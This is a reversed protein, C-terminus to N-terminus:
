GGFQIKQVKVSHIRLQGDNTTRGLPAFATGSLVEFRPRMRNTYPAGVGSNSLSLSNWIVAYKYPGGERPMVVGRNALGADSTDAANTTLFHDCVIEETTVSAGLRIVDPNDLSDAQTPASLEYEILYDTDAEITVPFNDEVSPPDLLSNTTDGPRLLLLGGPDITGWNTPDLTLNGGSFTATQTLGALDLGWEDGTDTLTDDDLAAAGIEQVLSYDYRQVMVSTFCLKGEDTDAGIGAAAVDLIKLILRFDNDADLGSRFFGNTSDQFYSLQFCPPMMWFVFESRGTGAIASNAGGENDLLFIEGGYANNGSSGDDNVNDYVVQWLPQDGVTADSTMGLRLKYVSNAVLEWEGYPSRWNAIGDVALGTELCLGEAGSTVTVTGNDVTSTWGSPTGATLDHDILTIGPDPPSYSDNADDVTYIIFIGDEGSEEVPNSVTTGDSAYLTVVQSGVLGGGPDPLYQDTPEESLPSATDDRITITRANGDEERDDLDQNDIQNTPSVFQALDPSADTSEPGVGNILYRSAGTTAFSWIVASTTTDDDEVRLDLDFADPYVFINSDTGDEADGVIIDPINKITPALAMANFGMLAIAVTALTVLFGKRM